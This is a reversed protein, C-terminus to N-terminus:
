RVTRHWVKKKGIILTVFYHSYWGVKSSKAFRIVLKMYIRVDKSHQRLNRVMIKV